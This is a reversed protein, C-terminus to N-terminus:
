ECVKIVIVEIEAGSAVSFNLDTTYITNGDGFLGFEQTPQYSRANLTTTGTNNLYSWSFGKYDNTYSLSPTGADLRFTEWCISETTQSSSSSPPCSGAYVTAEQAFEFNTISSAIPNTDHGGNGAYSIFTLYKDGIDFGVNTKYQLAGNKYFEISTRDAVIHILDGPNYVVTSGVQNTNSYLYMGSNVPSPEAMEIIMDSQNNIGVFNNESITDKSIAIMFRARPNPARFKFSLARTTDVNYASIKQSTRLKSLYGNPTNNHLSRLYIISDNSYTLNPGMSQQFSLAKPELPVDYVNNGDATYRQISTMTGNPNIRVLEYYSEKNGNALEVCKPLLEYKATNCNLTSKGTPPVVYTSGDPLYTGLSMATGTTKKSVIEYYEQFTTDGDYHCKSIVVFGISPSTNLGQSQCSTLFAFSAIFILLLNKM